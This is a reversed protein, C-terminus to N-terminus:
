VSENSGYTIDSSTEAKVLERNEEPSDNKTVPDFNKDKNVELNRDKSVEKVRTIGFDDKGFIFFAIGLIFFAAIAILPFMFKM